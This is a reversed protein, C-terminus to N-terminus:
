YGASIGRTSIAGSSIRYPTTHKQTINLTLCKHLSSGNMPLIEYSFYCLNFKVSSNDGYPQFANCTNKRSIAYGVIYDIIGNHETDDPMYFKYKGYFRFRIKGPIRVKDINTFWKTEEREEENREGVLPDPLTLNHSGFTIIPATTGVFM